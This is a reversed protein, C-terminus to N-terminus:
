KMAKLFSDDLLAISDIPKPALKEKVLFDNMM